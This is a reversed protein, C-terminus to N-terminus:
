NAYAVANIPKDLASILNDNKLSSYGIKLGIFNFTFSLLLLIIFLKKM